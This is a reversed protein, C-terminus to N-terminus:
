IEKIALDQSRFNLLNRVEMLRNFYLPCIYQAKLNMKNLRLWNDFKEALFFHKEEGNLSEPVAISACKNRFKFGINILTKSM